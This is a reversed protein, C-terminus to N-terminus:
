QQQHSTPQHPSINIPQPTSLNLPQSTSIGTNGSILATFQHKQKEINGVEGKLMGCGMDLMGCGVDLM